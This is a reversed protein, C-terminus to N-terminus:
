GPQFNSIKGKDEPQLYFSTIEESEKVKRVVVFNRWDKWTNDDSQHASRGNKLAPQSPKGSPKSIYVLGLVAGCGIAGISSYMAVKSATEDKPKSLAVAVASTIAIVSGATVAAALSIMVTAIVSAITSKSAATAIATLNRSLSNEINRLSSFM